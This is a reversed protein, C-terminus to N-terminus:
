LRILYYIHFLGIFLLRSVFECFRIIFLGITSTHFRFFLFYFFLRFFLFWTLRGFKTVRIMRISHGLLLWFIFFSSFYNWFSDFKSPCLQFFNNYNRNLFFCSRLFPSLWGLKIMWVRSRTMFNSYGLIFSLFFFNCPRNKKFFFVLTSHHSRLLFYTFSFLFFVFM